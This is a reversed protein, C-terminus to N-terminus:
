KPFSDSYVCVRHLKRDYKKIAHKKKYEILNWCFIEECITTVMQVM